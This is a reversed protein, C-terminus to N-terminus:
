GPSLEDESASRDAKNARTEQAVIIPKLGQGSGTNLKQVVRLIQPMKDIDTKEMLGDNPREDATGTLAM